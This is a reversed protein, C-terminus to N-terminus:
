SQGPTVLWYLWSSLIGGGGVGGGCDRFGLRVPFADHRSPATNTKM